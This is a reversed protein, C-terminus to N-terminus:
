NKKDASKAAKALTKTVEVTLWQKADNENEILGARDIRNAISRVTSVDAEHLHSCHQATRCAHMYSFPWSRSPSRYYATNLNESPDPYWRKASDFSGAPHEDRDRRRIYTIAANVADNDAFTLLLHAILTNKKM